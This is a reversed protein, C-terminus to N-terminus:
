SVVNNVKRPSKNKRQMIVEDTANMKTMSKKELSDMTDAHMHHELLKKKKEKPKSKEIMQVRRYQDLYILFERYTFYTKDMGSWNRTPPEKLALISNWHQYDENEQGYWYKIIM